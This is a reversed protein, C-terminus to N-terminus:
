AGPRLRISGDSTRIRLQKGGAGIRTRLSGHNAEQDASQLDNRISGDGTHADLEAAFDAPLYLTVAGDGTTVEWDDDMKTGPEAHYVISGDGSHLRVIGLKGSVNVSGDGTDVELRGEADDVTISGDGTSLNLDGTIQNARVSGDGTHVELKGNVREISVSGDGSRARIDARKPVWVILRASPSVNLGFMHVTHRAPRHAEVTIADGNQSTRVEIQDLAARTPGRKEIEVLVDPNDWSQIQISGDFTTASVSPTGSVTFRKEEHVIQGQSDVTVTCGAAIVAPVLLILAKM